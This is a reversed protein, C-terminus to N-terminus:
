RTWRISRRSAGSGSLGRRTGSAGPARVPGRPRELFGYGSDPLQKPLAILDPRAGIGFLLRIDGAAEWRGVQATRTFDTDGRLPLPRFGAGRCPRIARHLFRAAMEHSPRNGGRNVLIRSQTAGCERPVALRDLLVLSRGFRMM